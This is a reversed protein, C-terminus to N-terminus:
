VNAGVRSLKSTHHPHGGVGVRTLRGKGCRPCKTNVRCEERERGTQYGCEFCKYRRYQTM